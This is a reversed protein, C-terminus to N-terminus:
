KKGTELKRTVERIAIKPLTNLNTALYRRVDDKHYNIMSRLLWSIAKTIMVHREHKLTNVCQFSLTKWSMDPDARVTSCLVVLSARRKELYPDKNWAKLLLTRNKPDALIWINVEDSFSDVEAWGTLLSMWKNIKKSPLSTLLKSYKGSIMSALVKEEFSSGHFLLDLLVIFNKHTLDPHNKRFKSAIARLTPIAVNRVTHKTGLYHALDFDTKRANKKIEDVLNKSFQM